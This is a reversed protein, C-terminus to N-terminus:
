IFLTTQAMQRVIGFTKRHMECFGHQQIALVHTKTPYGKNVNWGYIPFQEHAKEM